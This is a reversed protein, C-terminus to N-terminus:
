GGSAALEKVSPHLVDVILVIRGPETSRHDQRSSSPWSAPAEVEHEFSDDFVFAEGERWGPERVEDGVRFLCCSSDPVVLPIHIRLRAASGCHPRIHTGAALRSYQVTLDRCPSDAAPAPTEKQGGGFCRAIDPVAQTVARFAVPALRRATSQNWAGHSALVINTWTGDHHGHHGARGRDHLGEDELTFATGRRWLDLAEERLVPLHATLAEVAAGLSHDTAKEEAHQRPDVFPTRRRPATDLRAWRAAAPSLFRRLAHPWLGMDVGRTFVDRAELHQGVSRLFGGYESLVRAWQLVPVAVIYAGVVRDEEVTETAPVGQQELLALVVEFETAVADIDADRDTRGIGQVVRPLVRGACVAHQFRCDADEPARSIELRWLDLAAEYQGDRMLALAMDRSSRPPRPASGALTAMLTFAITLLAPTLANM